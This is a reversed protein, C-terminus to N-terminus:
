RLRPTKKITMAMALWFPPTPLVVVAMLRAAPKAIRLRLVSSMSRSGWALEEIVNRSRRVTSVDIYSTSATPRASVSTTFLM